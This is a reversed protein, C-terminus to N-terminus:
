RSTGRRTRRAASGASSSCSRCTAGCAPTSDAIPASSVAEDDYRSPRQQHPNHRDARAAKPPSALQVLFDVSLKGPWKWKYQTPCSGAKVDFKDPTFILGDNFSCTPLFFYRADFDASVPVAASATPPPLVAMKAVIQEAIESVKVMTKRM